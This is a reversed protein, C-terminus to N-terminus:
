RGDPKGLEAVLKAAEYSCFDEVRDQIAQALLSKLRDSAQSPLFHEALEYCKSDYSM